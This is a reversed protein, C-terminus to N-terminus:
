DHPLEKIIYNALRSYDNNIPHNKSFQRITLHNKIARRIDACTRINLSENFMDPAEREMTESVEKHSNQRKDVNSIFSCLPIPCEEDLIEEIDALLDAFGTQSFESTDMPVIIMDAAVIANESMISRGPACDILVYDYYPEVEKLLKRLINGRNRKSILREETGKLRTDAPAIHVNPAVTELICETISVNKHDEMVEAITMDINTGFPLLQFTGNGQPDADAILVRKGKVALQDALNVTVTTKGVGGKQNFVPIVKM